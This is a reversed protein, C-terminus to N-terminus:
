LPHRQSILFPILFAKLLADLCDLLFHSMLQNDPCFHIILQDCLNDTKCHIFHTIHARLNLVSEPHHIALYSFPLRRAAKQTKASHLRKFRPRIQFGDGTAIKFLFVSSIRQKGISSSHSTYHVGNELCLNLSYKTMLPNAAILSAFFRFTCVESNL